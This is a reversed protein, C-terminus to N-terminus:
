AEMAASSLCVSRSRIRAKVRMELGFSGDFSENIM